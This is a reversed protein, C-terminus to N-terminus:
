SRERERAAAPPRKAPDAVRAWTTTKGFVPLGLYGHLKLHTRDALRVRCRFWRGREPDYVRGDTWRAHDNDDVHYDLDTVLPLGVLPRDRKAPDPNERDVIPQGAMGRKDDAPYRAERLWVIHGDYTGQGAPTIEIVAGGDSTQWFGVIADAPWVKGPTDSAAVAVPAAVMLGALWVLSLGITRVVGRKM